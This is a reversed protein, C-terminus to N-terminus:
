YRGQTGSKGRNEGGLGVSGSSGMPGAKPGQTGCRSAPGDIGPAKQDNISTPGVPPKYGMTSREYGPLVGGCDARSEKRGPSGDMVSKAM